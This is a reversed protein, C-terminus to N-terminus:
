IAIWELNKSSIKLAKARKMYNRVFKGGGVVLILQHKKKIRKLINVFSKVRSIIAGYDDFLLSGGIKIVIKMKNM